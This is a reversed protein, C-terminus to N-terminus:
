PQIIGGGLVLDVDYFVAAQGPTVARQPDRFRVTARDGGHPFVRAPAPAHQNRIKVSCAVPDLPPPMAIWNITAVEIEGRWLDEARGVRITHTGADIAVVYYPATSAIGLGRRQGITYACIGHHKGLVRGQLDVIPGKAEPASEALQESIFEHYRGQPIFCIEQSEGALVADMPTGKGWAAVEQKLSDGLPFITAALQRENLGYLFYSQDKATDRGRALRFRSDRDDPPLIRAYHGTAFREAGTRLAHELLAGFKVRPNCLVCPNPTLGRRYTEIFPTLVQEAFCDRLDVVVLPISLWQTLRALDAERRAHLDGSSWRGSTSEPQIRMHVGTVQHGQAKLLAAARLSDVGGSM